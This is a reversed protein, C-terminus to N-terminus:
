EEIVWHPVLSGAVGLYRPTRDDGSLERFRRPVDRLWKRYVYEKPHFGLLLRFEDAIRSEKPFSASFHLVVKGDPRCERSVILRLGDQFDFVQATVEGPRIGESRAIAAQDYVFELARPYRARLAELPQPDAPVPLEKDTKSVAQPGGPQRFEDHSRRPRVPGHLFLV